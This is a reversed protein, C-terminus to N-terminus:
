VTGENVGYLNAQITSAYCSANRSLEVALATFVAPFSRCRGRPLRLLSWVQRVTAWPCRDARGSLRTARSVWTAGAEPLAGLVQLYGHLCGSRASLRLALSGTRDPQTWERGRRPCRRFPVSM